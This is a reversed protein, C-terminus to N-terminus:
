GVFGYQLNAHLSQLIVQPGLLVVRQGERDVPERATDFIKHLHNPTPATPVTPFRMQKEVTEMARNPATQNM